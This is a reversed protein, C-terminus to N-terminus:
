KRNARLNLFMKYGFNLSIVKAKLHYNSSLVIESNKFVDRIRFYGFEAGITYDLGYYASGIPAPDILKQTNFIYLLGGKAMATFANQNTRSCKDGNTRYKGLGIELMSYPTALFSDELKNSKPNLTANVGGGLRAVSWHTGFNMATELNLGMQNGIHEVDPAVFSISPVDYFLRPLTSQANVLSACMLFLITYFFFKMSKM